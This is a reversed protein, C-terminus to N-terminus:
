TPFKDKVKRQREIAEMWGTVAVELDRGSEKGKGM